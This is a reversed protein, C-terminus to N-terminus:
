DQDVDHAGFEAFANRITGATAVDEIDVSVEIPGTLKADQRDGTSPAATHRDSGAAQEGATNADGVPAIVIDARDIGHEQVLREVTM